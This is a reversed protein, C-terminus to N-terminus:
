MKPQEKQQPESNRPKIRSFQFLPHLFRAVGGEVRTRSDTLSLIGFRGSDPPDDLTGILIRDTSFTRSRRVIMSVDLGGLERRPSPTPTIM